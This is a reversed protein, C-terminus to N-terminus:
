SYVATSQKVKIAGPTLSDKPSQEIVEWMAAFDDSFSRMAAEESEGCSLISFDKAECVWSREEEGPPRCARRFLFLQFHRLHSPNHTRRTLLALHQAYVRSYV